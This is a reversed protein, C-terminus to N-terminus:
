RERRCRPAPDRFATSRVSEILSWADRRRRRRCGRFRRPWTRRQGRRSSASSAVTVSSRPCPMSSSCTRSWARAAPARRACTTSGAALQGRSDEPRRQRGPRKSPRGEATATVRGTIGRVQHRDGAHFAGGVTAWPAVPARRRGARATSRPGRARASRERSEGGRSPVVGAGRMSWFRHPRVTVSPSGASGQTTGGTSVNVRVLSGCRQAAWGAM